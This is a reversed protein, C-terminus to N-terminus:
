DYSESTLSVNSTLNKVGETALLEDRQALDVAPEVVRVVVVRVLLLTAAVQEVRRREEAVGAGAERGVGLDDLLVGEGEAGDLDPQPRM